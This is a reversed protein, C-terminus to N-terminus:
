NSERQKEKAQTNSQYRVDVQVVEKNKEQSVNDTIDTWKKSWMGNTDRKSSRRRTDEKRELRKYRRHNLGRNKMNRTANCVCSEERSHTQGDEERAPHILNLM